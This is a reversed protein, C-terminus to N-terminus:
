MWVYAVAGRLEALPGTLHSHGTIRGIAGLWGM